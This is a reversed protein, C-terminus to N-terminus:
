EPTTLMQAYEAVLEQKGLLGNIRRWASRPAPRMFTLSLHYMKNNGAYSADFAKLVTKIDDPNGTLFHWNGGAKFRKAYTRLQEPTDQEPDISISILRQKGNSLKDIDTQASALSASLIPCITSCTVFVFQLVVPGESNLLQRLSVDDGDANILSVDPLEYNATSVQYKRAPASSMPASPESSSARVGSEELLWTQALDESFAPLCFGLWLCTGALWKSSLNM